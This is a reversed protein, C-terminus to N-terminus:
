AAFNFCFINDVTFAWNICFGLHIIVYIFGLVGLAIKDAVKATETSVFGSFEYDFRLTATLVTSCCVVFIIDRAEAQHSRDM